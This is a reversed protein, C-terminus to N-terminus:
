QDFDFLADDEEICVGMGDVDDEFDDNQFCEDEEIITEFAFNHSINIDERDEAGGEPPENNDEEDYFFYDDNIKSSDEDREPHSSQLLKDSFYPSIMSLGGKLFYRRALPLADRSNGASILDCDIDPCPEYRPNFAHHRIRKQPHLQSLKRVPKSVPACKRNEALQRIERWWVKTVQDFYRKPSSQHPKVIFDNVEQRTFTGVCLSLLDEKQDKNPACRYAEILRQVIASEAFAAASLGLRGHLNMNSKGSIENDETSSSGVSSSTLSSSSLNSLTSLNRKLGKQKCTTNNGINNDNLRILMNLRGKKIKNWNAKSIIYPSRKDSTVQEKGKVATAKGPQNGEPNDDNREFEKDVGLSECKQQMNDKNAPDYAIFATNENDKSEM